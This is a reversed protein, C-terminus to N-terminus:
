NSFYPANIHMHEGFPPPAPFSVLLVGGGGGGCVCVEIPDAGPESVLSFIKGEEKLPLRSVENHHVVLCHAM